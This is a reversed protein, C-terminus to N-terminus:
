HQNAFLCVIMGNVWAMSPNTCVCMANGFSFDDWWTCITIHNAHSTFCRMLAPLFLAHCWWLAGGFCVASAASECLYLGHGRSCENMSNVLVDEVVVPLVVVFVPTLNPRHCSPNTTWSIATLLGKVPNSWSSLIGSPAMAADFWIAMTLNCCFGFCQISVWSGIEAGCNEVHIFSRM